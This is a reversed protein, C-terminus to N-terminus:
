WGIQISTGSLEFCIILRGMIRQAPIAETFPDDGRKCSLTINLWILPVPFSSQIMVTFGHFDNLWALLSPWSSLQQTADMLYNM